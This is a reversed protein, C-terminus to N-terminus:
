RHGGGGSAVARGGGMGSRAFGGFPRTVGFPSGRNVGPTVGGPGRVPAFSATSRTAFSNGYPRSAFPQHPTVFHNHGFDHFHHVHGFGDTYIIPWGWWPYGYNYWWYNYYPYGAYYPYGGYPYGSDSYDSSMGYDYPYPPAQPQPQSYM